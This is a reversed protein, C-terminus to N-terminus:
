FQLEEDEDADDADDEDAAAAAAAVVSRHLSSLGAQALGAPPRPRFCTVAAEARASAPDCPSDPHRQWSVLPRFVIVLM